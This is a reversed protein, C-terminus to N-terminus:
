AAGGSIGARVEEGLAGSRGAAAIGASVVHGAAADAGIHVLVVHMLIM